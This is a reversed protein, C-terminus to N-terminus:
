VELYISSDTSTLTPTFYRSYVSFVPFPRYLDSRLSSIVLCRDTFLLRTEKNFLSLYHFTSCVCMNIQGFRAFRRYPAHYPHPLLHRVRDIHPHREIVVCQDHYDSGSLEVVQVIRMDYYEYM